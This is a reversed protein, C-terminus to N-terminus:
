QVGGKPLKQQRIWGGLMKGIEIMLGSVYEYKRVDILKFDLALRTQYRLHELKINTRNLIELKERSMQATLLEELIDMLTREMREGLVFRFDRPLKQICPIYWRILEYTKAVVPLTRHEM